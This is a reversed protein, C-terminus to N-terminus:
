SVTNDKSRMSILMYLALLLMVVFGVYYPINAESKLDNYDITAANGIAFVISLALLTTKLNKKM